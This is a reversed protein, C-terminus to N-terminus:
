VLIMTQIWFVCIEIYFTRKDPDPFSNQCNPDKETRSKEGSLDLEPTSIKKFDPDM